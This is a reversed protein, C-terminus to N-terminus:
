EYMVYICVYLTCVCLCVCVYVTYVWVPECLCLVCVYACLVRTCVRMYLRCVCLMFEDHILVTLLLTGHGPEQGRGEAGAM